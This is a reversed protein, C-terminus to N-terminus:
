LVKMRFLMSLMLGNQIQTISHSVIEFEAERYSGEADDLIDRLKKNIVFDLSEVPTQEIVSSVMRYEWKNKM